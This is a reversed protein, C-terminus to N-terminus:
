APLTWLKTPLLSTAYEINLPATLSLEKANADRSPLRNLFLCTWLWNM